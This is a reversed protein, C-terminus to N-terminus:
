PRKRMCLVFDFSDGLDSDYFYYFRYDPVSECQHFDVTGELRELVELSGSGCNVMIMDPKEQTGVNLLCDHAQAFRAPKALQAPGPSATPAPKGGTAAPHHFPSPLVGFLVLVLAFLAVAGAFGALGLVAPARGGFRPPVLPGPSPDTM